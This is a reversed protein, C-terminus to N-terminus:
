SNSMFTQLIVAVNLSYDWTKNLNWYNKGYNKEGISALVEFTVWEVKTAGMRFVAPIRRMFVNKTQQLSAILNDM